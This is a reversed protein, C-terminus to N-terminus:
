EIYRSMIYPMAFEAGASIGFFRLAKEFVQESYLGNGECKYGYPGKLIDILVQVQSETLTLFTNYDKDEISHNVPAFYSLPYPAKLIKKIKFLYPARLLSSVIENSENHSQHGSRLTYVLTDVQNNEVIEELVGLKDRYGLSSSCYDAMISKGTYAHLARISPGAAMINDKDDQCHTFVISVPLKSKLIVAGAQLIEDDFHPVVVLNIKM